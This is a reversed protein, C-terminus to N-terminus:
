PKVLDKDLNLGAANCLIRCHLNIASQLGLEVFDLKPFTLLFKHSEAKEEDNKM